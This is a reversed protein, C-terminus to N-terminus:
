KRGWKALMSELPVTAVFADGNTAVVNSRQTLLSKLEGTLQGSEAAQKWIM